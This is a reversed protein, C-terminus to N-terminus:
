ALSVHIQLLEDQGEMVVDPSFFLPNKVALLICALFQGLKEVIKDDM